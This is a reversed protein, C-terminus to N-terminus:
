TPATARHRAASMTSVSRVTVSRDRSSQCPLAAAHANADSCRSASRRRRPGRRRRARPARRAREGGQEARAAAALRCQQADDGPEVRGVRAGHWRPRPGSRGRRGAAAADAEAELVVGREPVQRDPAVDGEPELDALRGLASILARTSSSSSSTRGPAGPRASGRAARPRGAGACPAPGRGPWRAWPAGARRARRRARRGPACRLQALPQAVQVVVSCTVVTSTVWSWSSAMSTASRRAM